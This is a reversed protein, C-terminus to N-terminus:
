FTPTSPVGAAKMEADLTPWAPPTARALTGAQTGSVTPVVWSARTRAVTAVAGAVPAVVPVTEMKTAKRGAYAHHLAPDHLDGIQAIRFQGAGHPDDHAAVDEGTPLSHGDGVADQGL